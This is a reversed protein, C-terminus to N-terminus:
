SMASDDPLFGVNSGGNLFRGNVILAECDQDKTTGVVIIDQTHIPLM